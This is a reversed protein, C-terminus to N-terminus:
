PDPDDWQDRLSAEAAMLLVHAQGISQITRAEVPSLSVYCPEGEDDLYEVLCLFGTLMSGPRHREILDGIQTELDAAAAVIADHDM